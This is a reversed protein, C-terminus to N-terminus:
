IAIKDVFVRFACHALDPTFRFVFENGNANRINEWGFGRDIQWQYSLFANSPNQVFSKLTIKDGLVPALVDSKIEVLLDMAGSSLPTPMDGIEIEPMIEPAIEPASGFTEPAIEPTIQPATQQQQQQPASQQEPASEVVVPAEARNDGRGSQAQSFSPAQSFDAPSEFGVGGQDGRGASATTALAFIMVVALMMMITKKM